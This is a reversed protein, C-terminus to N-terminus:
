ERITPTSNAEKIMDIVEFDGRCGCVCGSVLGRKVLSKLKARIVKPPISPWIAEIAYRNAWPSRFGEYADRNLYAVPLGNSLRKILELLDDDPIDKAQM